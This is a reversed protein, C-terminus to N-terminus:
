KPQLKDKLKSVKERVLPDTDQEMKKVLEPTRLYPEKEMMTAVYLHAWWETRGAFYDVSEKVGGKAKAAVESEPVDQGYVRAVALVAAQPNRGYMYRILGQSANQKKERLIGEYRSFDVSGEPKCDAIPLHKAALIRTSEDESDLLPLMAEAMIAKSIALQEIIFGPLMAEEMGNAHASFYLLQLVMEKDGGAMKQVDALKQRLEEQTGTSFLEQREQLNTSALSHLFSQVAINPKIPINEAVGGAITPGAYLSMAAVVLTVRYIITRVM